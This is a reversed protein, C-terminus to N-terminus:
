PNVASFLFPFDFICITISVENIIINENIKWALKFSNCNTGGRMCKYSFAFTSSAFYLFILNRFMFSFNIARTPRTEEVMSKCLNIYDDHKTIFFFTFHFEVTKIRCPMTKLMLVLSISLIFLLFTFSLFLNQRKRECHPPPLNYLADSTPFIWSEDARGASLFLM